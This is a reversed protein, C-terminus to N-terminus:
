QTGIERLPLGLGGAGTAPRRLGAHPNTASWETSPLDRQGSAKAGQRDRAAVLTQKLKMQQDPTMAPGRRLPVDEVAPHLAPAQAPALARANMLSSGTSSTACGGLGLGSALLAAVVAILRYNKWRYAARM